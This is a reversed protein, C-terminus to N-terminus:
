SCASAATLKQQLPAPFVRPKLLATKLNERKKKTYVNYVQMYPVEVLYINELANIPFCLRIIIFTSANFGRSLFFKLTRIMSFSYLSGNQSLSDAAAFLPASLESKLGEM